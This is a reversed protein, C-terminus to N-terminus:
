CDRQKERREFLKFYQSIESSVLLARWFGRWVASELSGTGHEALGLTMGLISYLFTYMLLGLVAKFFTGTQYSSSGM